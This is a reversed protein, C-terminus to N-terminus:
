RVVGRIGVVPVSRTTPGHKRWRAVFPINYQYHANAARAVVGTGGWGVGSITGRIEVADLGNIVVDVPTSYTVSDAHTNIAFPGTVSTGIGTIPVTTDARADRVLPLGLLAICVILLPVQLVSSRRM